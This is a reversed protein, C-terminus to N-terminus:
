MTDPKQNALVVPQQAPQLYPLDRAHGLVSKMDTPVGYSGGCFLVPIDWM